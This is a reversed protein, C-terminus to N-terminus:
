RDTDDVVLVKTKFHEKAQAALKEEDIEIGAIVTHGYDVVGKGERQLENQAYQKAFEKPDM